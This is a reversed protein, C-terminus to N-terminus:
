GGGGRSVEDYICLFDAGKSVLYRVVGNHGNNFALSM